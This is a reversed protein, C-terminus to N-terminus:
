NVVHFMLFRKDKREKDEFYIRLNYTDGEYKYANILGNIFAKALKDENNNPNAQNYITFKNNKGNAEWKGKIGSSTAYGSYEGMGLDGDEM